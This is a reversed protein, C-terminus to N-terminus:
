LSEKEKNSTGSAEDLQDIKISHDNELIVSLNKALCSSIKLQEKSERLDASFDELNEELGDPIEMENGQTIEAYLSVIKHKIDLLQQADPHPIEMHVKGGEAQAVKNESFNVPLATLDDFVQFLHQMKERAKIKSQMMKLQKADEAMGELKTIEKVQDYLLEQDM